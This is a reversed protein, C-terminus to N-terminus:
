HPPLFVAISPAAMADPERGAFVSYVGPLQVGRLLTVSVYVPVDPVVHVPDAPADDYWWAEGPEPAVGVSPLVVWGPFWVRPRGSGFYAVAGHEHGEARAYGAARALDQGWDCNSDAFWRHCEWKGGAPGQLSSLYHPHVLGVSVTLGMATSAAVWRAARLSLRRRESSAETRDARGWAAVALAGLPLGALVALLPLAPLLYRVLGFRDTFVFFVCLFVVFGLAGGWEAGRRRRPGRLLLVVGGVLLLGTLLPTKLALAVPLFWRWGGERLEGHFFVRKGSGGIGAQVAVLELYSDPLPSPTRAAVAQAVVRVGDPLVELRQQIGPWRPHQELPRFSGEFGFGAHLTLFALTFVVVWRGAVPGARAGRDGPDGALRTRGSRWRGTVVVVAALGLFGALIVASTKALFAAGLALGTGLVRWRSCPGSSFLPMAGWLTLATLLTIGMDLSALGGHALAEPWTSWVLAAAWGAWPGVLRRGMRYVVWGVLVGLLVNVARAWRLREQSSRGEGHLWDWASRWHHALVPGRQREDRPDVREGVLYLPTALAVKLLWPSSIENTRVDGTQLIRLGASVYIPEDATATQSWTASFALVAYLGLTLATARRALRESRQAGASASM